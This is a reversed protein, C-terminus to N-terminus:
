EMVLFNPDEEVNELKEPEGYAKRVMSASSGVRIGSATTGKFADVMPKALDCWGGCM